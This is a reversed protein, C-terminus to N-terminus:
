GQDMVVHVASRPVGQYAPLDSNVPLVLNQEFPTIWVDWWDRASSRYTSVQWSASAPGASFDLLQAPAFVIAGYSTWADGGGYLSTMMHNKCLFASDALATVQHTAPPPSCDAGHQAEMSGNRDTPGDINSILDWDNVPGPVW